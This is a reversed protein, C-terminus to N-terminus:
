EDAYGKRHVLRYGIACEGNTHEELPYNVAIIAYVRQNTIGAIQDHYEAILTGIIDRVLVSSLPDHVLHRALLKRALVAERNERYSPAHPQRGMIGMWIAAKINIADKVDYGFISFSVVNVNVGIDRALSARSGFPLTDYDHILKNSEYM